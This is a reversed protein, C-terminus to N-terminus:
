ATHAANLNMQIKQFAMTFYLQHAQEGVLIIFTMIKM